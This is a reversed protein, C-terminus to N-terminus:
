TLSSDKKLDEARGLMNLMSIRISLEDIVSADQTALAELDEMELKPEELCMLIQLLEARGEDIGEEKGWGSQERLQQRELHSMSKIQVTLGLSELFVEERVIRPKLLDEKSARRQEEAQKLQAIKAENGAM